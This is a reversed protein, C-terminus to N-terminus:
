GAMRQIKQADDEMPKEDVIINFIYFFEPKKEGRAGRGVSIITAIL